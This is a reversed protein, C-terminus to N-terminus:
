GWKRLKLRIKGDENKEEVLQMGRKKAEALVKGYVYAQLIKNSAEQGAKALEDKFKAMGSVHVKCRNDRGKSFTLTIGDKEMVLKEEEGLTEGLNESNKLDLDVTELTKGAVNLSQRNKVMSYGMSGLTGAIASSLVPWAVNALVPTVAFFLSM